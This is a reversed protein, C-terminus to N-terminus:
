ECPPPPPPMQNGHGLEELRRYLSSESKGTYKMWEFARENRCCTTAYLHAAIRREAAIQDQRSMDRLEHKPVIVTQSVDAHVLDHWHSESEEAQWQQFDPLAKDVYLRVSPRVGANRCDALLFDAVALADPVSVGLQATGAIELIQAEIEAESPSYEMVHVRDGLARVAHNERTGLPQNSIAVIGGTFEVEQADGAKGYRVTTVRSSGSQRGLAALFIQLATKDRFLANVDDLAIVSDRHEAILEFLGRTTIHGNAYVPSPGLSDLTTRVLFTKSTGPPGYLYAGKARGSAVGRLRDRILSHKRHLSQLASSATSM